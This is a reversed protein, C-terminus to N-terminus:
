VPAQHTTPSQAVATGPKVAQKNLSWKTRSLVLPSRFAFPFSLCPYAWLVSDLVCLFRDTLKRGYTPRLPVQKVRLVWPFLSLQFSVLVQQTNLPKRFLSSLLGPWTQPFVLPPIWLIYSKLPSRLWPKPTRLGM